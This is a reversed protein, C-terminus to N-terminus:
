HHLARTSKPANIGPVNSTSATPNSTDQPVATTALKNTMGPPTHILMTTKLANEREAHKLPIIAWKATHANTSRTDMEEDVEADAVEDAM